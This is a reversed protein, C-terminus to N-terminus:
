IIEGIMNKCTIDEAPGMINSLLRHLSTWAFNSFNIFRVTEPPVMRDSIEFLTDWHEDAAGRLALMYKIIWDIILDITCGVNAYSGDLWNQALRVIAPTRRSELLVSLIYFREQEERPIHDEYAQQFVPELGYREFANKITEPAIMLTAGEKLFIRILKEQIGFHEFGAVGSNTLCVAGVFSISLM